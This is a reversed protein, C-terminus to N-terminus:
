SLIDSLRLLHDAYEPSLLTYQRIIQSKVTHHTISRVWTGHCRLEAWLLELFFFTFYLLSEPSIIHNDIGFYKISLMLLPYFILSLFLYGCFKTPNGVGHIRGMVPTFLITATYFVLGKAISIPTYELNLYQVLFIPVAPSAIMFAMGYLFIFKM